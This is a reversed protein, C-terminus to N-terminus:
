SVEKMSPWEGREIAAWAAHRAIAELDVFGGLAQLYDTTADDVWGDPLGLLCWGRNIKQRMEALPVTM